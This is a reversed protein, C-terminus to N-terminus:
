IDEEAFQEQFEKPASAHPFHPAGWALVLLFPQSEQANKKIYSIADITEAYPGYGEWRKKEKNRNQFSSEPPHIPVHLKWFQPNQQNKNCKTGALHLVEPHCRWSWKSKTARCNTYRLLTTQPFISPLYTWGIGCWWQKSASNGGSSGTILFSIKGKREISIIILALKLIKSIHFLYM